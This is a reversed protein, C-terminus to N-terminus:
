CKLLPLLFTILGVQTICQSTISCSLGCYFLVININERPFDGKLKVLHYKERLRMKKKTKLSPAVVWDLSIKVVDSVVIPRSKGGLSLNYVHAVM